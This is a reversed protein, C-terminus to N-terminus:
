TLTGRGSRGDVQLGLVDGIRRRRDFESGSLLDGEDDGVVILDFVVEGHSWSRIREPSALSIRISDFDTVATGLDFPSSRYM